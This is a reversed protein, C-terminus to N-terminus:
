TAYAGGKLDTVLRIMNDVCNFNELVIYEDSVDVAFEQEIFHLLRMAFISSVFGKEFINDSDCLEATEDFVDMNELIFERIRNRAEQETQIM